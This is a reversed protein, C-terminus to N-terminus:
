GIIVAGSACFPDEVERHKDKTEVVGLPIITIIENTVFV